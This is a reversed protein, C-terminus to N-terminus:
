RKANMEKIAEVVLLGKPTIKANFDWLGVSRLHEYIATAHAGFPQYDGVLTDRELETLLIATQRSTQVM